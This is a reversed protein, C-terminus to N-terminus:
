TKNMLLIVVPKGLKRKILQQINNTLHPYPITKLYSLVFVLTAFINNIECIDKFQIFILMQKGYNEFYNNSCKWLLV